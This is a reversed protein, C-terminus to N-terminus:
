KLTTCDWCGELGVTDYGCTFGYSTQAKFGTNKRADDLAKRMYGFSGPTNVDLNGKPIMVPADVNMPTMDDNKAM